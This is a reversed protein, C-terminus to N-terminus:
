AGCRSRSRPACWWSTCAPALEFTQELDQSDSTPVTALRQGDLLPEAETSASGWADYPERPESYQAFLFWPGARPSSDLQALLRRNVEEAPILERPGM